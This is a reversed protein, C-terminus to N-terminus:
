RQRDLQFVMYQCPTKYSELAETQEPSLTEPSRYGLREWFRRSGQVSVLALHDLCEARAFDHTKQVLTAAIGTGRLRRSVALDHLYLCDPVPPNEFRRGLPTIKGLQSRYGVLYAAVEGAVALVWATDPTTDLRHRIVAESENLHPAYCEAQIALVAPVDNAQMLRPAPMSLMSLSDSM